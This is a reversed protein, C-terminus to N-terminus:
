ASKRRRKKEGSQSRSSTRPEASKALADKLEKIAKSQGKFQMVLQIGVAFLEARSMGNADAFADAQALLNREVTTTVREAGAGVVPRGRKAKRIRRDAKTIAPPVRVPRPNPSPADYERTADRLEDLTMDRYRKRKPTPTNTSM